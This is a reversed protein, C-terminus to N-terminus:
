IPIVVISIQFSCVCVSLIKNCTNSTYADFVISPIPNLWRLTRDRDVITFFVNENREYLFHFSLAFSSCM